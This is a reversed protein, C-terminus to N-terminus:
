QGQAGNTPGRSAAFSSLASLRLAMSEIALANAPQHALHANRAPASFRAGALQCRTGGPVRDPWRASWVLDPAGVDGVNGDAAIEIMPHALWTTGCQHHSRNRVFGSAR